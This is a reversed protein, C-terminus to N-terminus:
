WKGLLRYDNSRWNGNVNRVGSHGNIESHSQMVFGCQTKKRYLSPSQMPDSYRNFGEPLRIFLLLHYIPRNM